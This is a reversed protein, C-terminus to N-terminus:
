FATLSPNSGGCQLEFFSLNARKTTLGYGKEIENEAGALRAPTDAMTAFWKVVKCNQPFIPIRVGTVTERLETKLVSANLREAM